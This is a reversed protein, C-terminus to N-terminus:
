TYADTVQFPSDAFRHFPSFFRHPPLSTLSYPPSPSVFLFRQCPSVNSQAVRRDRWRRSELCAPCSSRSPSLVFGLASKGCTRLTPSSDPPFILKQLSVHLIIMCLTLAANYAISFKWDTSVGETETVDKIDRNVISLLDSVEQRSSKHPRLWDNDAWSKLSM